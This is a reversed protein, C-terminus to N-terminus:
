NNLSSVVESTGNQKCTLICSNIVVRRGLQYVETATLWILWANSDYASPKHISTMRRLQLQHSTRTYITSFKAIQQPHIKTKLRNDTQPIIINSVLQFV